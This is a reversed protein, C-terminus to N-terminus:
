PTMGAVSPRPVYVTLSLDPRGEPVLAVYALDVRGLRPHNLRKRGEEFGKVDVDPWWARFEPSAGNLEEVLSDFPAKEQAKARSARFTQLMGRTMQEWDLILTRYPKYLFLLRLTNREQPELAGYDVLLDCIAAVENILDASPLATALEAENADPRALLM